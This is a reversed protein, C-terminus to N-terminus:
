VTERGRGAQELGRLIRWRERPELVGAFPSARRLWAADESPDQLVCAIEEPTRSLIERWRLLLPLSSGGRAIWEDLKRRARDIVRPDALVKEAVATHLALSKMM